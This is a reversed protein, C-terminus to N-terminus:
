VPHGTYVPDTQTVSQSHLTLRAPASEWAIARFSELMIQQPYIVQFCKEVQFCTTQFCTVQFCKELRILSLILFGDPKFGNM